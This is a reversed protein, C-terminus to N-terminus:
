VCTKPTLKEITGMSVKDMKYTSLPKIIPRYMTSRWLLSYLAKMDKAVFM